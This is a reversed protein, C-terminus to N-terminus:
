KFDEELRVQCYGSSFDLTKFLRDGKLEEFIEQIKPIQWRNAKMIRHLARYNVCFHPAGYKKNEIVVTVVMRFIGTNYDWFGM